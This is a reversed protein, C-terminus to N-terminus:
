YIGPLVDAGRWAREFQRQTAEAEDFKGQKRLSAALGFLSRGHGINHRLDARFAAEAGPADGLGLLTEGLLWNSALYWVPPEDYALKEEAAAALRLSTAAAVLDKRSLALRGDLYPQAVALMDRTSGTGAPDKEGAAAAAAAFSAREARSETARGQNALALARAFHYYAGSLSAEQPPEAMALADNWRDFLVYVQAPTALFFDVYPKAKIEDLDPQVSAFLRNAAVVARESAGALAYSVALFHLNHGYYGSLYDSGQDSPMLREDAHAASENVRAAELYEGTRIYIHAPMHVLHGASPALTELRHAAVLGKEPHESMEVAHVYFHNAGIHNPQAQLADELLSVADLTGQEPAGDTRWWKWPHLDMLSEAYLVTADIDDPYRTHLASMANKYAVDLNSQDIAPDASYRSRLAEIYDREPQTAQPALVVAKAIAKLAQEKSEASMASNINPGSAYAIGWYAMALSPDLELARRYSRVAAEHNFAYTLKLGQDFYRQAAESSTSVAHHLAGLGGDLTTGSTAPHAPHDHALSPGGSAAAALVIVFSAIRYM